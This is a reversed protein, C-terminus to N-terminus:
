WDIESVRWNELILDSITPNLTRFWKNPVVVIRDSKDGLYGAWWSFSSNSLVLGSAFSLASLHDFPRRARKPDVVYDFKSRFFPSLTEPSDSFLVRPLREPGFNRLNELEELVYEESVLGHVKSASPLLYDGRRVHAAFYKRGVAKEIDETIRNKRDPKFINKIEDKIDEFYRWSQFYGILKVDNELELIRPDFCFCRERFNTKKEIKLKEEIKNLINIRGQKKKISHLLNFSDLEYDRINNKNYNQLNFILTSRTRSAVALATAAVFMQNGLGGTIVAEIKAM